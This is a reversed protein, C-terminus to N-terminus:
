RRTAAVQGSRLDVASLDERTGSAHVARSRTWGLFRQHLIGAPTWPLDATAQVLHAGLYRALSVPARDYGAQLEQRRTPCPWPLGCGSCTWARPVPSHATM